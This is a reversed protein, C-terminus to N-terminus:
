ANPEQSKGDVSPNKIFSQDGVPFFLQVTTGMGERSTITIEGQLIEMFEKVIYLGLHFGRKRETEQKSRNFPQFINQLMDTSIGEGQDIIEMLIKKQEQRSQMKGNVTVVSDPTSFKLANDIVNFLIQQFIEPDVQVMLGPDCDLQVRINKENIIGSLTDLTATIVPRIGTPRITLPFTGKEVHSLTLLHQILRQLKYIQEKIEIVPQETSPQSSELEEQLNRLKWLMTNLPARLDHAVESLILTKWESVKQAQKKQLSEQISLELYEMKEIQLAAAHSMENMLDMDEKWFRARSRKEGLFWIV